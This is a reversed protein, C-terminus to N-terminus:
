RWAEVAAIRSRVSLPRTADQLIREKCVHVGPHLEVVKAGKGRWFERHDPKGATAILWCRPHSTRGECFAALRRNRERVLAGIQSDTRGELPLGMAVAMDDLDLVLDVPKAHTRVYTTKGAGPPGCVLILPKTPRPMWSPLMSSKRSRSEEASKEIHHNRCISQWNTQDWFLAQDGEHPIIHDVEGAATVRGERECVACLPHHDLWVKRAKDWRTTYGRERASKREVAGHRRAKVRTPRHAIPLDPM